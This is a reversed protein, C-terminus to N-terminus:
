IADRWSDQGVFGRQVAVRCLLPKKNTQQHHGGLAVNGESLVDALATADDAKVGLLRGLPPRIM